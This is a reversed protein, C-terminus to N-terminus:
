VITLLVQHQEVRIGPAVRLRSVVGPRPAKLENQMKMSELIVLIDGKHVVQGNEVGISVVLGPMPAKLQFEMKESVNTGSELKLRRELEEEVLISYSRGHMVVQWAKEAPYIYAEHSKGNLLLSFIPHDGVSTFDVDFLQGNVSIQLDDLIEIQYEQDAITAIYRM